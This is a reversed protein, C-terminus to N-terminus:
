LLPSVCGFAAKAWASRLQTRSRLMRLLSWKGVKGASKGGAAAAEGAEAVSIIPVPARLNQRRRMDSLEMELPFKPSGFMFAHKKSRKLSALRMGSFEPRNPGRPLPLRLSESRIVAARSPPTTTARLSESRGSVIIPESFFEFFGDDPRAASLDSHDDSDHSRPSHIPLDCFSLADESDELDQM